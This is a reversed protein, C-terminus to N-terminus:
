GVIGVPLATPGDGGRAIHNNPPGFMRTSHPVAINILVDQHRLLHETTGQFKTLNDVMAVPVLRIVARLIKFNHRRSKVVFGLMSLAMRLPTARIFRIGQNLTSTAAAVAEQLVICATSRPAVDTAVVDPAIAQALERSRLGEDTWAIKSPM